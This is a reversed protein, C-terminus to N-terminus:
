FGGRIQVQSSTDAEYAPIVSHLVNLPAVTDIDVRFFGKSGELSQQVVPLPDDEDVTM